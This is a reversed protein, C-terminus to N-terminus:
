DWRLPVRRRDKKRRQLHEALTQSPVRRRDKKRRQLHEPLCSNEAAFTLAREHITARSEHPYFDKLVERIMYFQDAADHIPNKARRLEESIKPRGRKGTRAPPSPKPYEWLLPWGEIKSAVFERVAEEDRWAPPQPLEDSAYEDSAFKHLVHTCVEILFPKRDDRHKQRLKSIGQLIRDRENEWSPPLESVLVKEVEIMFTSEDRHKQSLEIFRQLIRVWKDGRDDRHKQSLESFRQM